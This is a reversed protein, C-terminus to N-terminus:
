KEAKSVTGSVQVDFDSMSNRLGMTLRFLLEVGKGNMGTSTDVLVTLIHLVSSEIRTVHPIPVLLPVRYHKCGIILSAPAEHPQARGPSRPAFDDALPRVERKDSSMLMGRCSAM